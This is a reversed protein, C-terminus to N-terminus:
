PTISRITYYIKPRKEEDNENVPNIPEYSSYSGEYLWEKVHEVLMVADLNEREYELKLNDAIDDDISEETEKLIVGIIEYLFEELITTPLILSGTHESYFPKTHLIDDERHTLTRRSIVLRVNPTNAKDTM